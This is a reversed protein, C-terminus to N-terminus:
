IAEPSKAKKWAEMVWGTTCNVLDGNLAIFASQVLPEANILPEGMFRSGAPLLGKADLEALAVKVADISNASGEVRICYQNAQGRLTANTDGDSLVCGALKRTDIAGFFIKYAAYGYLGSDLGDIDFLVGIAPM